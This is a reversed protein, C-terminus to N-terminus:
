RFGQYIAQLIILAIIWLLVGAMLVVGFWYLWDLSYKSRRRKRHGRRNREKQPDVKKQEIRLNQKGCPCSM